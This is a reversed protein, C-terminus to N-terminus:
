ADYFVIDTNRLNIGKIGAKNAHDRRVFVLMEESVIIPVCGLEKGVDVYTNYMDITHTPFRVATVIANSQANKWLELSESPKANDVIALAVDRYEEITANMGYKRTMNSVLDINMNGVFRIVQGRGQLGLMGLLEELVLSVDDGKFSHLPGQAMKTLANKEQM